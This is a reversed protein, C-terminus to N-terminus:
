WLSGFSVSSRPRVMIDYTLLASQKCVRQKRHQTRHNVNKHMHVNTTYWKFVLWCIMDQRTVKTTLLHPIFSLAAIILGILIIHKWEDHFTLFEERKLLQMAHQWNVLISESSLQLIINLNSASSRSLDSSLFVLFPLKTPRSFISPVTVHGICNLFHTM